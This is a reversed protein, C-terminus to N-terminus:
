TRRSETVDLIIRRGVDYGRRSSALSAERSHSSIREGIGIGALLAIIIGYANLTPLFYIFLFDLATPVSHLLLLIQKRM